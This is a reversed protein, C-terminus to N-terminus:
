NSPPSLHLFYMLCILFIKKEILVHSKATWPRDEWKDESEAADECSGKDNTLEIGDNYEMNSNFQM